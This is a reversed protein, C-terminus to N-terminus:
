WNKAIEHVNIRMKAHIQMVHM